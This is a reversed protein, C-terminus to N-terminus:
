GKLEVIQLRFRTHLRKTSLLFLSSPGSINHVIFTSSGLPNLFVGPTLVSVFSM